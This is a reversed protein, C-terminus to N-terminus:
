VKMEPSVNSMVWNMPMSIPREPPPLPYALKLSEMVSLLPRVPSSVSCSSILWYRIPDHFLYKNVSRGQESQEEGRTRLALLHERGFVKRLAFASQRQAHHGLGADLASVIRHIVARNPDVTRLPQDAAIVRGVLHRLGQLQQRAAVRDVHLGAVPAGGAERVSAVLAPLLEDDRGPFQGRHLHDALGQVGRDRHVVGGRHSFVQQGTEPGLDPHPAVHQGVRLRRRAIEQGNRVIRLQAPCEGARM